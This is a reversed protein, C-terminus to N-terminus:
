SFFAALSNGEILKLEQVPALSCVLARARHNPSSFRKVNWLAGGGPPPAGGPGLVFAGALGGRRTPASTGLSVHIGAGLSPLLGCPLPCRFMSLTQPMKLLHLPLETLDPASLLLAVPSPRLPLPPACLLFRHPTAPWAIRVGPGPAPGPLALRPGPLRRGGCLLSQTM